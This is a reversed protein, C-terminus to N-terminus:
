TAGSIVQANAFNDNVPPPLSNWNLEIFGTQSRPLGTGQEIGISKGDVALYYTTNVIANFTVRSQASPGANDSSAVASLASVVNGTYVGLLTDFSSGFTDFTYLGSSPATWRYWVSAGGVDNAHNPENVEKSAGTNDGAVAGASGVIVQAQAFADNRASISAS